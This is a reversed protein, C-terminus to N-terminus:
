SNRNINSNSNTLINIYEMFDNINIANNNIFNDIKQLNDKNKSQKIEDKIRKVEEQDTKYKAYFLRLKMYTDSDTSCCFRPNILYQNKENTETLLNEKVLKNKYKWFHQRQMNLKTLIDKRGLNIINTKQNRNNICYKLLSFEKSSLNEIKDFEDNYISFYGKERGQKQTETFHLEGESIIEGSTNVMAVKESKYSTKNKRM